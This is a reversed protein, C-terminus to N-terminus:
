RINNKEVIVTVTLFMLLLVINISISISIFLKVLYIFMLLLIYGGTRLTSLKIEIQRMTFIWSWIFKLLSSLFLSIVISALGLLQYFLIFFLLSLLIGVIDFSLLYHTKKILEPGVGSIQRLIDLVSKFAIWGILSSAIWYKQPAVIHLIQENFITIIAAIFICGFLIFNYVRTISEKVNNDNLISYLYPRWAMRLGSNVLQFVATIQMAIAFLGLANLGFYETILYRSLTKEFGIILSSPVLPLSYKLIKKIYDLSICLTLYKRLMSILLISSCVEGIFQGLIIGLAGYKYIILFIISFVVKVILQTIAIIVFEKPRQEFRMIVSFYTYIASFPIWAFVVLFATSATQEGILIQSVLDRFLISLLAIILCLLATLWFGTSVLKQKESFSEVEIFYRGVGSYIELSSFFTLFLAVQILYDMLGYEELSLYRTYIPILFFSIFKSLVPLIGYISFSKVFDRM